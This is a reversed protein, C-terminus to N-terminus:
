KEPPGKQMAKTVRGHQGEAPPIEKKIDVSVMCREILNTIHRHHKIMGLLSDPNAKEAIAEDRITHSDPKHHTMVELPDAVRLVGMFMIGEKSSLFATLSNVAEKNSRFEFESVPQTNMKNNVWM